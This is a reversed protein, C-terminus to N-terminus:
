YYSLEYNNLRYFGSLTSWFSGSPKLWEQSIKTLGADEVHGDSFGGNLRNSHRLHVGSKSTSSYVNTAYSGKGMNLGSYYISDALLWYKSSYKIKNLAIYISRSKEVRPFGFYIEYGDTVTPGTIPMAAYTNSFDPTNQVLSPCFTIPSVPRSYYQLSWQINSKSCNSIAINGNNEGAYLLMELLIQKQNNKCAVSKAVNRARNLAPLLMGALIAIIAIVVLLEVLTFNSLTKQKKM